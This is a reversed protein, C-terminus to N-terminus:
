PTMFRVDLIHEVEFEQNGGSELVVPTPNVEAKDSGSNDYGKLFSVHFM